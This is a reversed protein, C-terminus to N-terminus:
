RFWTRTRTNIKYYFVLSITSYSDNNGPNGRLTGPAAPTPNLGNWYSKDAVLQAVAADHPALHKQFDSASIYNGSVGDLYDTMTMRWMYEIGLNLHQGIDWRYGLAIPVALQWQSYDPPFGAGFGQGELRLDYTKVWTQSNAVTSYPTFHFVGIGAAIYPQGHKYAARSDPNLRFPNLEMLFLSEFINAKATQNRAYRQYGDLGQTASSSGHALNYNWADTAYVTGYNLVFRLHFCPHVTYRGFMGGIFAVKKWYKSNNYHDMPSQTGVDGWLDSLGVSTGLSWGDPEIYIRGANNQAEATGFVGMWACLMLLNRIYRVPM